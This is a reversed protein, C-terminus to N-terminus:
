ANEAEIKRLLMVLLDHKHKHNYIDRIGYAIHGFRTDMDIYHTGKTKFEGNISELEIGDPLLEYEETTLLFLSNEGEENWKIM